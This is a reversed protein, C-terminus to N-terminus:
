IGNTAGKTCQLIANCFIKANANGHAKVILGKLGLIPAGGYETADFRKFAENLEDKLLVAGLKTKPSSTLTEKVVNKMLHGVGEYFKIVTNGVFGDCVLVDADGDTIHNGEVYGIYNIEGCKRLLPNAAKVLANGKEDESGVNILGVRPNVIGFNNKMYESGLVAFQVLHKERIDVNAGCDLLLTPGKATPIAQAFPGRDVGKERGVIVQAGVMLAGSNGASVFADAEGAHVLKLGVCMSSDKKKRIALVPPEGTEIVDTANVVVLREKDYEKGSLLTKIVNEKGVLFVKLNQEKKVALLAGAVAADPAYDGGMADLAVRIM